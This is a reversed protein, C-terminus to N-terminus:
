CQTQDTTEVSEVRATSVEPEDQPERMAESAVERDKQALYAHIQREGPFHGANSLSSMAERRRRDDVKRQVAEHSLLRREAWTVAGFTTFGSIMYAKLALTQRAFRPFYLHAATITIFGYITWRIGGELAGRVQVKYGNEVAAKKATTVAQHSAFASSESSGQETQLGNSSVSM